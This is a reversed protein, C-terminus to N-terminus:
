TQCGNIIQMGKLRVKVKQKSSPLNVVLADATISVGNNMFGFWASQNGTVTETIRRNVEKGTGLFLRVNKEFLENNSYRDVLRILHNVNVVGVLVQEPMGNPNARTNHHLFSRDGM